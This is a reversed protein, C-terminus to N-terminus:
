KDSFGCGRGQKVVIDALTVVPNAVWREEGIEPLWEADLTRLCAVSPTCEGRQRGGSVLSDLCNRSLDLDRSGGGGFGEEAGEWVDPPTLALGGRRQSVLAPDPHNRADGDDPARQGERECHPDGGGLALQRDSKSTKADAMIRQLHDDRGRAQRREGEADGDRQRRCGQARFGKTRAAVEDYQDPPSLCQALESSTHLLNKKAGGAGSYDDSTDKSSM